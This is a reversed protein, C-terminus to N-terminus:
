GKQVKKCVSMISKGVREYVEVLSIGVRESEELRFFTGREPPAEGYLGKYSSSWVRSGCNAPELYECLPSSAFLLTCSLVSLPDPAPPSLERRGERERDEANKERREGNLAEKWKRLVQFLSVWLRVKVKGRCHFFLNSETRNKSREAAFYVFFDYVRM